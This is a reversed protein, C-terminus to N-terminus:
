REEENTKVMFDKKGSYKVSFSIHLVSVGDCHKRYFLEPTMIYLKISPIHNIPRYHKLLKKIGDLTGSSM